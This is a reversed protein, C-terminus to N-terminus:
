RQHYKLSEFWIRTVVVPNISYEDNGEVRWIHRDDLVAHYLSMNIIRTLAVLNLLSSIFPV